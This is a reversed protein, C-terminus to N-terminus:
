QIASRPTPQMRTVKIEAEVFRVWNDRQGPRM